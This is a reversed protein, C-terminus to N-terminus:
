GAPSRSDTPHADHRLRPEHPGDVLAGGAGPEHHEVMLTPLHGPVLQLVLLDQRPRAPHLVVGDLDPLAGGATTCVASPLALSSATVVEGRDADGVLALGRDHPVATGARGNCLAITHCSVRVSAIAAPRSRSPRPSTIRWRAPSGGAVYKEPAFSATSGRSRRPRRPLCRLAAVRQEARRVGPHQPVEGATGSPPTWAVSTVLALRVMSISRSVRCHSSSSSPKKPTGRAISGSIRSDDAVTGKPVVRRVPGNPPSTGIM